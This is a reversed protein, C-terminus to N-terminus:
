RPLAVGATRDQCDQEPLLLRARAARDSGDKGSLEARAAMDPLEGHCDQEAHGTRGIWNQWDKEEKGTKGTRDQRDQELQGNQIDQGPQGTSAARAKSYTIYSLRM